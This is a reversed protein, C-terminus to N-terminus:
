GNNGRFCKIIRVCRFGETKCLFQSYVQAELLNLSSFFDDINETNKSKVELDARIEEIEAEDIDYRDLLSYLNLKNSCNESIGKDEREITMPKKSVLTNKFGVAKNSIQLVPFSGRRVLRAIWKWRETPSIDDFLLKAHLKEKLAILYYLTQGDAILDFLRRWDKFWENLKLRDREREDLPIPKSLSEAEKYKFLMDWLARQRDLM